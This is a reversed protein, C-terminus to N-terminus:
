NFTTQNIFDFLKGEHNRRRAYRKLASINIHYKVFANEFINKLETGQYADFVVKDVLLDVLIKELRPVITKNIQMLPSESILIKVIINSRDRFVYHQMEKATPNMLATKSFQAVFSYVSEVADREVEVITWQISPLHVMFETLWRAPWICHNAYPFKDKIKKYLNIQSRELRPQFDTKNKKALGYIGRGLSTLVGRQKLDHLHWHIAKDTLNPYKKRFFSLLNDINKQPSEGFWDRLDNIEFAYKQM